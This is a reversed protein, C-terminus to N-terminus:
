ASEPAGCRRTRRRALALAALAAAGLLASGSPEPVSSASLATITGDWQAVTESSGDPFVLDERYFALVPPPWADPDWNLDGLGTGLLVEGPPSSFNLGVLRVVDPDGDVVVTSGAGQQDFPLPAGLINLFLQFPALWSFGGASASFGPFPGYVCIGAGCPAASDEYTFEGSFPDGVNVGAVTSTVVTGSFTVHVSAAGVGAAM